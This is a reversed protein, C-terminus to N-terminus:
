EFFNRGCIYKGFSCVRSTVLLTDSFHAVNSPISVPLSSRHGVEEVCDYVNAESDIWNLFTIM